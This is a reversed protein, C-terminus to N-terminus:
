LVDEQYQCWVRVVTFSSIDRSGGEVGVARLIIIM